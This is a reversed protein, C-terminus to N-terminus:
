FFIYPFSASASTNACVVITMFFTNVLGAYWVSGTRLYIKRAIYAAAVLMPLIPFLVVYLLAADWQWAAGTSFYVGYQILMVLGIGFINLFATIATSAWEPVNKFRNNANILANVMYFIGFLCAYRLITWLKIAEFTKFALTWFRYDTYFIESSLWEIFYAVSVVFIAGVLARAFNGNGGTRLKEFPKEGNRRGFIVWSLFMIAFAIISTLIAWVVIQNAYNQNFLSSTPLLTAGYGWTTSTFYRITFGSILSIGIGTIWFVLHKGWGKLSPLNDNIDLEGSLLAGETNGSVCNAKIRRMKGFYPIVLIIEAFAIIFLVIGVLGILNFTEKLWWTQSGSPIYTANTPIGMAAYYFDVQYAASETSFHAWPHIEAPTYIVRFPNASPNQATIGTTLGTSTYYAGAVVPTTPISIMPNNAPVPLSSDYGAEGELPVTRRQYTSFEPYISKILRAAGPSSVYDKPLWEYLAKNTRETDTTPFSANYGTYKGADKFFFEDYQGAIVGVSTKRGYYAPTATSTLAAQGPNMTFPTCSVSLVAAIKNAKDEANRAAQLQEATATAATVGADTLSKEYAAIGKKNYYDAAATAIGGGRSHGGVGFMNPIVYDLTSMYEILHMIGDGRVSVVQSNGGQAALDFAVVVFGRRSMEIANIDQMEKNNITGHITFIVPAPNEKTATRPKYIFASLRVTAVNIDPDSLTFSRDLKIMEVAYGDTQILSACFSSILCTVLSVLLLIKAAKRIKWNKPRIKEWFNKFAKEKM